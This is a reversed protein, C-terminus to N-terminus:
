LTSIQKWNEETVLGHNKLEALSLDPYTKFFQALNVRTIEEIMGQQLQELPAIQYKRLNGLGHEETLQIFSPRGEPFQAKARMERLEKPNEYDHIKSAVHYSLGTVGAAASSLLFPIGPHTNGNGILSLVSFAGTFVAIPYSIAALSYLATRQTKANITPMASKIKELSFPQATATNSSNQVPRTM